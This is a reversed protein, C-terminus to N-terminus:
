YCFDSCLNFACLVSLRHQDTSQATSTCDYQLNCLFLVFFYRLFFFFWIFIMDKYSSAHRLHYAPRYILIALFPMSSPSCFFILVVVVVDSYYILMLLFSWLSGSFYIYNLVIFSKHIFTRMRPQGDACMGHRAKGKKSERKSVREREKTKRKRWISRNQM